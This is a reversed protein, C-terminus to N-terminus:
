PGWIPLMLVMKTYISLRLGWRLLVSDAHANKKKKSHLLKVINHYTRSYLSTFSNYAYMYGKVRSDREGSDWGELDDCIM